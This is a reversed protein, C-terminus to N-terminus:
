DHFSLNARGLHHEHLGLPKHDRQELARIHPVFLVKVLWYPVTFTELKGITDTFPAGLSAGSRRRGRAEGFNSGWWASVARSHM